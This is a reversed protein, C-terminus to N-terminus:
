QRPLALTFVGYDFRCTMAIIQPPKLFFAEVYFYPAVVKDDFVDRVDSRTRGDLISDQDRLQRM